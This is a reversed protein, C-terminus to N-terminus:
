SKAEMGTKVSLSNEELEEAQGASRVQTLRESSRRGTRYATGGSERQADCSEPKRGDVKGTRM